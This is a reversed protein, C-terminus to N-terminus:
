PNPGLDLKRLNARMSPELRGGDKGLVQVAGRKRTRRLVATVMGERWQLQCVVMTHDSGVDIEQVPWCQVKGVEDEPILIFDKLHPTAQERIAGRLGGVVRSSSTKTRFHKPCRWDRTSASSWFAIAIGVAHGPRSVAVLRATGLVTTV